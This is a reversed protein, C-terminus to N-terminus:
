MAGPWDQVRSVSRSTRGWSSGRPARSRQCLGRVQRGRIAPQVANAWVRRGAAGQQHCRARRRRLRWAGGGGRVAADTARVVRKMSYFNLQRCFSALSITNFYQPLVTAALADEDEIIFSSGDDSWHIIHKYDPSNLMEWLSAVFAPVRGVSTIEAKKRQPRRLFPFTATPPLRKEDSM